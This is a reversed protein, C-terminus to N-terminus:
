RSKIIKMKKNVQKMWELAMLEHGAPVPHIGDWIWYDAPAKKLVANFSEKFPVHIANFETALQKVIAQGKKMAEDYIEM